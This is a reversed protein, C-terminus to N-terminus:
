TNDDDPDECVTEDTTLVRYFCWGTVGLVLALSCIMFIWGGASM